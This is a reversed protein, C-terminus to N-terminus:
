GWRAIVVGPAGNGGSRAVGGSPANHGSGGSGFGKGNDPADNINGGTGYPTNGGNNYHTYPMSPSIRGHGGRQGPVAVTSDSSAVNVTGAIGGEPSVNGSAVTEPAFAGGGGGAILDAVSTTGNFASATGAQGAVWSGSTPAVGGTGVVVPITAPLAALATGIYRRKIYGGAGGGGSTSTSGAATTGLRGGSGGGGLVEVELWNCVPKPWAPDSANFMKQGPTVLPVGGQVLGSAGMEILTGGSSRMRFIGGLQGDIQLGARDFTGAGLLGPVWTSAVKGVELKAGDVWYENGVVKGDCWIDPTIVSTGDPVRFWGALRQWGEPYGLTNNTQTAGDPDCPTLAMEPPYTAGAKDRIGIRVIAGGGLAGLEGTVPDKTRVYLSYTYVTGPVVDIGDGPTARYPYLMHSATTLTRVRLSMRSFRRVSQDLAFAATAPTANGWRDPVLAAGRNYTLTMDPLAPNQGAVATWLRVLVQFFRKTTAPQSPLSTGWATPTAGAASDALRYLFQVKGLAPTSNAWSFDKGHNGTVAPDMDETYIAQGWRVKFTTPTMAPSWFGDIDLTEVSWRYQTGMIIATPINVTTVTGVPGSAAVTGSDWLTAGADSYLRVRYGAMARNASHGYTFKVIPKAHAGGLTWIAGEAANWIDALAGAGPSLGTPLAPGNSLTITVSATPSAAGDQDYTGIVLTDQGGVNAVGVVNLPHDTVNFGSGAPMTTEGMTPGAMWDHRWKSMTDGADPDSGTFSVLVSTTGPPFVQGPTPKTIVPKAPAANPPTTTYTVLIYPPYSSAMGYFEFSHSASGEADSRIHIGNNAEAPGPSGNPQQVYSPIMQKYFATVDISQWGSGTASGDVPTGSAPGPWKEGSASTSWSNESGGGSSWQDATDPGCRYITAGASSGQATHEGGTKRFFFEIKTVKVMGSWDHAFRLLTRFRISSNFSSIGNPCHADNGNGANGATILALSQERNADFRRTAM